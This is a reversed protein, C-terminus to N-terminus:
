RLYVNSNEGFLETIAALCDAHNTYAEGSHALVRRNLANIARWRWTQPRGIIRKLTSRNEYLDVYVLPNDSMIPNEKGPIPKPPAAATAAGSIVCGSISRSWRRAFVAVAVRGILRGPAM